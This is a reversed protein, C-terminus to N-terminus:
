SSSVPALPLFFRRAGVLFFLSMDLRSSSSWCAMSVPPSEESMTAMVVTRKSFKPSSENDMVVGPASEPALFRPGLALATVISASVGASGATGLAGGPMAGIMVVGDFRPLRLDVCCRALSSLFFCFFFRFRVEDPSSSPSSSSEASSKSSEQEVAAARPLADAFRVSCAAVAAAQLSSPVPECALSAASPASAALSSAVALISCALSFLRRDVRVVAAM